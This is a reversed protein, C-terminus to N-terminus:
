GRAADSEEGPTFLPVPEDAQRFNSLGVGVLRYLQSRPLSVRERLSLAITTLEEVSAPPAICTLTRTLVDFGATKLKLVVTRAQRPDRRSATWVKEALRKIIDETAALPINKPFTDEASISKVLRDSVVPNNDTGRALEYLRLGYRGLQAELKEATYMALEGVASVNMRKLRSETM